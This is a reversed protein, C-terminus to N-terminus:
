LQLQVNKSNLRWFPDPKFFVPDTGRDSWLACKILHRLKEDMMMMMRRGRMLAFVPYFTVTNNNINM